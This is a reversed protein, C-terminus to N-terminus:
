LDVPRKATNRGMAFKSQERELAQAFSNMRRLLSNYRSYADIGPQDELWSYLAHEVPGAIKPRWAPLPIALNKLRPEAVLVLLAADSLKEAKLDELGKAVLEAGPLGQWVGPIPPNM